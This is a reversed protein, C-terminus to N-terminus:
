RSLPRTGAGGIGVELMQFFEPLLDRAIPRLRDAEAAPIPRYPWRLHTGAEAWGGINAMLLDCAGNCFHQDRIFPAIHDDMFRRIRGEVELAAPLDTQM